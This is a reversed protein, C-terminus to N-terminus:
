IMRSGGVIVKNSFLIKAFTILSRLLGDDQSEPLGGCVTVLPSSGSLCVCLSSPTHLHLCVSSPHLWLGLFALSHWSGGFSPSAPFLEGRSTESPSQAKWCRSKSSRAEVVTFFYIDSTKLCGTCPWKYHCGLSCVCHELPLPIM